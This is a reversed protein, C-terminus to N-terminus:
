AAKPRTVCMAKIEHLMQIHEKIDGSEAVSDAVMQANQQLTTHGVLPALSRIKNCTGFVQLADATRIHQDLMVALKALQTHLADGTQSVYQDRVARLIDEDWTTLMYEGLTCLLDNEEIPTPVFADATSLRIQNKTVEDTCPGVLVIPRAYGQKRLNQTLEPGTIDGADMCCLIMDFAAPDQNESATADEAFSYKINTQLLYERLFPIITPDSGIILASGKLDRTRVREHTRVCQMIDPRIFEQVIIPTDFRIGIEHVVGGRHNCRVVTGTACHPKGDIRSLMTKIRTGTYTFSSHLVSLGGRSINRAAVTISRNHGELTQFELDLYPQHYQLRTHLRNPKKIDGSAHHQHELKNLLEKYVAQDLGLTNRRTSKLPKSENQRKM